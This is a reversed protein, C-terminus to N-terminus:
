RADERIQRGVHTLWAANDAIAPLCVAAAVLAGAPRPRVSLLRRLMQEFVPAATSVM